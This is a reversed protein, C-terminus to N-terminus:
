NGAAEFQAVVDAPIRGRSSIALGNASAWARITAPDSPSKAKTRRPSRTSRSRSTKRGAGVYQALGNRLQKAGKADVDIEYSVGDLSFTITEGAGPALEMGTLDDILV